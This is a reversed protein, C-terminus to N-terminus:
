LPIMDESSDKTTHGPAVANMKENDEDDEEMQRYGYRSSDVSARTTDLLGIWIGLCIVVLGVRCQLSEGKCRRETRSAFRAAREWRNRGACM